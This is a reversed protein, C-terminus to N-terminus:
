RGRRIEAVDNFISRASRVNRRGTGFLVDDMWGVWGGTDAEKPNRVGENTFIGHVSSINAELNLYMRTKTRRNSVDFNVSDKLEGSNMYPFARDRPERLKHWQTRPLYDSLADILSQEWDSLEAYALQEVDDFVGAIYKDITTYFSKTNLNVDVAFM